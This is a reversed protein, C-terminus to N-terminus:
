CPIYSALALLDITIQWVGWSEGRKQIQEKLGVPSKARVCFATDHTGASNRLEEGATHFAM